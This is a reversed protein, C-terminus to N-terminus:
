RKKGKGKAKAKAPLKPERATAVVTGLRKSTVLECGEPAYLKAKGGKTSIGLCLDGVRLFYDGEGMTEIHLWRGIVLEDFDGRSEIEQLKHKHSYGKVRWRMAPM